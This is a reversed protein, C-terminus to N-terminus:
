HELMKMTWDSLSLHSSKALRKMERLVGSSYQAAKKPRSHSPLGLERAVARLAIKRETGGIKDPIPIEDSAERVRNSALPAGIHKGRSVAATELGTLDALARDFDSRMASAPDVMSGYKAYGGFLEDAGSGVLILSEECGGVVRLIPVTYSIRVPDRTKLAASAEAMLPGLMGHDLTLLEVKVSEEKALREVSTADHSGPFAATYCMVDSFEAAIRAVISSDLGGSYAVAVAKQSGVIERTSDRIACLLDRAEMCGM